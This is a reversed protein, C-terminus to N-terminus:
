NAFPGHKHQVIYFYDELSSDANNFQAYQLHTANHATVRGYGFKSTQHRTAPIKGCDPGPCDENFNDAGPPGGNGSTVHVTVTPDIFDKQLPDGGTGTAGNKAPYLSEYYHWHGAIYMDVGGADLLPVLDKISADSSAQVTRNWSGAEQEAARAASFREADSSAADVAAYARAVAEEQARVQATHNANGHFEAADSGYYKAAMQKAYCGTCFFPYHSMAIVWPVTARNANAAALDEKLWKLQAAKCPDGCPDCGYYANLDLAVFHILGMDVSFYRSSGSPTEGGHLGAAHHTGTSLFAGLASDATSVGRYRELQAREEETVNGGAIPGWGEFNQDLFRGLEASAYYEHNGVVPMWPTNALVDQFATMYGDGRREDDDGENYAHDGLHIVLDAAGAALDAKLNGMNNWSYVGMDGYVNAVTKGGDAAAYPAKFSFTDSKAAGSGGSQVAYFYRARPKLGALKVFHMYYTRDKAATVHVHTVGKISDTLAGAASGVFATPADAPAAAEFTVWNVVVTDPGAIQVNIQEPVGLVSTCYGWDTGPAAGAPLLQVTMADSLQNYNARIWSGDNEYSVYLGQAAGPSQNILVYEKSQATSSSSEVVQVVMADAATAGNFVFGTNANDVGLYHDYESDGWKSFLKYQDKKGAVADFRLPIADTSSSYASRLWTKATSGAPEGSPAATTAFSVFNNMRDYTDYLTLVQGDLPHDGAPAPTPPPTPGDEACYCWAGDTYTDVAAGPQACYSGAGRPVTSNAWIKADKTSWPACGQQCSAPAAKYKEIVDMMNASALGLLGTLQLIGATRM